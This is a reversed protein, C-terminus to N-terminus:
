EEEMVMLMAECKKALLTVEVLNIVSSVYSSGDQTSSCGGEFIQRGEQKLYPKRNMRMLQWFIEAGIVAFNM